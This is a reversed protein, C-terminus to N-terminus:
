RVPILELVDHYSEYQPSPLELLYRSDDKSNRVMCGVQDREPNAGYPVVQDEYGYHLAGRYLLGGGAPTLTGFLRQSGTTKQITLTTDGTRIECRFYGYVVLPGLGGMKITRCRYQGPSINETPLLGGAFLDSVVTRENANESAMAAGLGRTRSAVLHEIRDIDRTSLEFNDPVACPEGSLEASLGVAPSALMLCVLAAAFNKM